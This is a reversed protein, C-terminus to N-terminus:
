NINKDYYENYAASFFTVYNPYTQLCIILKFIHFPTKDFPFFFFCLLIRYKPVLTTNDLEINSTSM